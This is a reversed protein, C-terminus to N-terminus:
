KKSTPLKLSIAYDLLWVIGKYVASEELSALFTDDKTTETEKVVTHLLTMLPKLIVRAMGMISVITLIIPYKQALGILM